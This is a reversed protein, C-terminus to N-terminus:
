RDSGGDNNTGKLLVLGRNCLPYVAKERFPGFGEVSVRSLSLDTYQREQDAKVEDSSELENLIELGAELLLMSTEADITEREHEEESLYARWTSEPTMEELRNAVGGVLNSGMAQEASKKVERIEVAVGESRLTKIHNQIESSQGEMLVQPITAVIRDGSRLTCNTARGELKLELLGEWTTVKFHRRGVDIPIYEICDWDADLVALTKQQQAESLSVEYPSGLYEIQVGGKSSKVTHPKHFHGSYIHKNSPFSAPPIGDLSVILDNMMAGTVEAHVFLASSEQAMTSQLISEMTAINRIHPVFLANRFKSPYSFILPGAVDGVRYANEFPTLGHNHGDLTVQDHNGPIMVMPVTWERFHELVSNLCDVRLTGRHHWFDGLFLVGANRELALEHVRSLVQLCTEMSAPSCHLDTFVVWRDYALHHQVQKLLERDRGNTVNTRDLVAADLDYITPPPPPFYPKQGADPHLIPRSLNAPSFTQITKDVDMDPITDKLRGVLQTSRCKVIAETQFLHVTYWGAGRIEQIIGSQQEKDIQIVVADGISFKKKALLMQSSSQFSRRGGGIGVVSPYGSGIISSGRFASTLSGRQHAVWARAVIPLRAFLLAMMYIAICLYPFQLHHCYRRIKRHRRKHIFDTEKPGVLMSLDKHHGSQGIPGDLM